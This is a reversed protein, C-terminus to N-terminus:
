MGKWKVMHLKGDNTLVGKAWPQKTAWELQFKQTHDYLKKLKKTPPCPSLTPYSDIDLM